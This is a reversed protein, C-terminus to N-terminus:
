KWCKIPGHVEAYSAERDRMKEQLKNMNIHKSDTVSDLWRM